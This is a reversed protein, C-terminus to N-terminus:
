QINFAPLAAQLEPPETKKIHISIVNYMMSSEMRKFFHPLGHPERAFADTLDFTRGNALQAARVELFAQAVVQLHGIREVLRM